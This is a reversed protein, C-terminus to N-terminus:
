TNSDQRTFCKRCIVEKIAKRDIPHHTEEQELWNLPLSQRRAPKAEGNRMPPPLWPCDDHCIRCGFALGCCPSILTCQREYHSCRPRSLEMKRATDKPNDATAAAVAVTAESSTLSASRRARPYPRGKCNKAQQLDNDSDDSSDYFEAAAAAAAMMGGASATSSRRRGDMLSQISRRKEFPTLRDDKMIKQISERRVQDSTTPKISMQEISDTM